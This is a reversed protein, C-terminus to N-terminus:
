DELREREKLEKTRENTELTTNGFKYSFGLKVYRNDLNTFNRSNQNAYKSRVAFDQQNFLDAFALSITGKKKFVKKSFSLDSVLRTDVIQFGQQNKGVYTLTFNATLSNDKLFSFDNSLVSYNSWQDTKILQNNFMAEDEINYFSTVFYVSWNDLMDFYTIFDFGFETTSGINTPSYILVNNDNDQLPLENIQNSIDKYYAEVTFRQNIESGVVFHNTFSPQLNPNGTVITNDNLFFNFPNLDQYNPREIVRKYNTYLSTNDFAQWSLNLTPFLELYDQTNNLNTMPSQGELDTYEARLGGSFSWTEWSKNYSLYGAIISEDYNFANTNATNLTQEGTTQNIDFQTIDSTTNVMSFKAGFSLNSTDSTPLDFDLQSTLIDTTQNNKTNFATSFNSTNNPFFYDSNVHQKRNYDYKTFHTNLLLKAGNKFKLTYDLDTGINYKDDQSYNIANFRYDDPGQLDDVNTEGKTLYDFYPLYLITSSLSLTNNDNIFYDFNLNANHTKSTTNRNIDTIWRESVTNNDLYNIEEDNDRNIKSHNYNYNLNINIKQTKYFQSLGANYRPFVGQTYNGFVTGRYGTVLNKSMVINLVVGSDADYKAPPNTIVEIKQISNASSNSLLQNLETASLQVKRDNIYVTPSSNKVSIVDGLILVGPTSRLVDLMSGESLSTNAVNFILRDVEKKLTPKNAVILVEDLNQNEEILVLSLNISKDLDFQQDVTKYGIYSATIRYKGSSLEDFQFLGDENSSVGKTVSIGESSLKYLVINTFAIPQNNEDSIKGSVKLDQGYGLTYFCLFFLYFFHKM